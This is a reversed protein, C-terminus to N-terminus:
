MVAEPFKFSTMLKISKKKSFSLYASLGCLGETGFTQYRWTFEWSLIHAFVVVYTGGPAVQQVAGRQGGCLSTM